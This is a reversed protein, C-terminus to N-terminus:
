LLCLRLNKDTCAHDREYLSLTMTDTYNERALCRGVVWPDIKQSGKWFIQSIKHLINTNTLWNGNITERILKFFVYQM